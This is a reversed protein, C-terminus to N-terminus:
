HNVSLTCEVVQKCSRHLFITWVMIGGGKSHCKSMVAQKQAFAAWYPAFKYSGDLDFNTEYSEGNNRIEEKDM